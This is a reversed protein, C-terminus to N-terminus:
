RSRASARPCETSLPRPDEFPCIGCDDETVRLGSNLPARACDVPDIPSRRVRPPACHLVASRAVLNAPSFCIVTASACRCRFPSAHSLPRSPPLDRSRNASRLAQRLACAVLHVSVLPTGTM